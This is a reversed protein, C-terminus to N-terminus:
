RIKENLYGGHRGGGFDLIELDSIACFRDQSNEQGIPGPHNKIIYDQEVLLIVFTKHVLSSWLRGKRSKPFVFSFFHPSCYSYNPTTKEIKDNTTRCGPNWSYTLFVPFPTIIKQIYM